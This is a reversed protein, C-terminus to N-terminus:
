VGILHMKGFYDAFMLVLPSIIILTLVIEMAQETTVHM